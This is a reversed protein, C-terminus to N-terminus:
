ATVEVMEARYQTGSDPAEAWLIGNSQSWYVDLTGDDDDELDEEPISENETISRVAAARTTCVWAGWEGDEHKWAVVWVGNM